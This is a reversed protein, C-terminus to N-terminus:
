GVMEVRRMARLNFRPTMASSDWRVSLGCLEFSLPVGQTLLSRANQDRCLRGLNEEQPPTEAAQEAMEETSPAAPIASEDVTTEGVPGTAQKKAFMSGAGLALLFVLAAIMVIMATMPKKKPSLPTQNFDTM